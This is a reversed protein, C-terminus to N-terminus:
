KLNVPPLRTKLIAGNWRCKSSEPQDSVCTICRNQSIVKNALIWARTDGDQLRSEVFVPVFAASLAGEGFLRRFLNPITFAVVFASMYLSTGFFAAMSVDRVLGLGRSLLTFGGVLGASRIVKENEM